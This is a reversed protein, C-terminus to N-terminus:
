NVYLYNNEFDFFLVHKEFFNYGFIIECHSPERMPKCVFKIDTAITDNMLSVSTSIPKSLDLGADKLPYYKQPNRLVSVYDDGDQMLLCNDFAAVVEGVYPLSIDEVTTKGTLAVKKWNLVSDPAHGKEFLTMTSDQYNFLVNFRKLLEQGVVGRKEWPEPVERLEESGPLDTIILNGLRLSDIKFLRNKYRNGKADYSTKKRRKIKPKIADISQPLLCVTAWEAGFDLDLDVSIGNIEMTIYAMDNDFHIPIQASRVGNNKTESEQFQLATRSFGTGTLLALAIVITGLFKNNFMNGKRKNIKNIWQKENM